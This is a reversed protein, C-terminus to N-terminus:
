PREPDAGERDAAVLAVVESSPPSENPPNARDIATVRYVVRQGREVDPDLYLPEPVLGPGVREWSATGVRRYVRYGALDREQGPDWFLRIAMGEQVAVLGEPAAPAFRDEAVLTVENGTASETYPPPDGVVVRVGYRYTKGVEVKSDLYEPTGLPQGNLPREPFEEADEARYLNYRFSGEDAPPAWTARIGDATPEAGLDRPPGPVAVPVVDRGVVLPSPRDKFDRVRVGYRLTWGIGGGALRTWSPDDLTVRAGSELPNAALVRVV